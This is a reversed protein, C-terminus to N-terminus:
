NSIKAPERKKHFVSEELRCYLDRLKPSTVSNVFLTKARNYGEEGMKLRLEKNEILTKIAMALVEPNGPEVALGTKNHQSVETVGSNVDSVITPIKSLQAEVLTLSFSETRNLCPLVFIDSARFVSGKNTNDLEGLYHVRNSLGLRKTLDKSDQLTPGLGGVLLHVEPLHNLAQLLVDVGKYKVHRGIFSVTPAGKTYKNKIYEVQEIMQPTEVFPEEETGHPIIEFKDRYNLLEDSTLGYKETFLIIAKAKRLIAHYMPLVMNRLLKQRVIDTHHTVVLPVDEMGALLISAVAIPNPAHLHIIDPKAKRLESVMSLTIEQSFLKGISGVRTVPIGDVIEKVFKQEHNFVLASVDHDKALEICNLYTNNEIGGKYPPFYKGLQLIKM